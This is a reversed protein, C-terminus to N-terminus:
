LGLNQALRQAWQRWDAFQNPDPVGFAQLDNINAISMAWDIWREETSPIAVNYGALAESAGGAWREFTIGANPYPIDEYSM